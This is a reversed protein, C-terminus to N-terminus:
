RGLYHWNIYAKLRRLPSAWPVDAQDGWNIEALWRRKKNKIVDYQYTRNDAVLLGEQFGSRFTKSRPWDEVHWVKGWKDVVVPKLGKRMIQKTLGNPGSEFDNEDKRERIHEGAADLFMRRDVMFATSRIGVNPFPESPDKLNRREYGSTAGVIGCDSVADFANLYHRLWDPALIRSWSMFLIIKEHPLERAVDAMVSLAPRDDPVYFIHATRGTKQMHEAIPISPAREEFGKQIHIYDHPAGADFRAMSSLFTRTFYHPNCWRELYIVACSNNM